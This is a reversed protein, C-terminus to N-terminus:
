IHSLVAGRKRRRGRIIKTEKAHPDVDDGLRFLQAIMYGLADSLHTRLLEAGERWERLAEGTEDWVVQEFDRILEECRPDIWISRVDFNNCFKANVSDVRARPAPQDDPVNRRYSRLQDFVREVIAWSSGLNDDHSTRHTGRQDGFAVIDGRHKRLGNWHGLMCRPECDDECSPPLGRSEDNTYPAQLDGGDGREGRVLARAFRSDSMEGAHFYEGFVGIHTVGDREFDTPYESRGPIMPQAMVAARPRLNYDLCLYLTRDPDYKVPRVNSSAFEYYAGAASERLIEGDLRRRATDKTMNGALGSRYGRNQHARNDSTKSRIWIAKGVGQQLLPWGRHELVPGHVRATIEGDETEHWCGACTEGERLAHYYKKAAEELEDLKRYLYKHPGRPPNFVWHCTHKHYLACEPDSEGGTMCRVREKVIDNAELENNIAEEIRAWGFQLTEYQHVSQNHLTGIQVHVGDATTLMGRYSPIAPIEIGQQAWRIQWSRSPQGDYKPIEEGLLKFTKCIENYLGGRFTTLTNVFIAGLQNTEAGGRGDNKPRGRHKLDHGHLVTKGSNVGGGLLILEYDREFHGRAQADSNFSFIAARPKTSPEAPTAPPM